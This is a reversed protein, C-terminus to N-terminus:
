LYREVSLMSKKLMATLIQGTEMLPLEDIFLYHKGKGLMAASSGSLRM